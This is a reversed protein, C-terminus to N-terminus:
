LVCLLCYWRKVHLHRDLVRHIGHKAEAYIIGLRDKGMHSVQGCKSDNCEWLCRHMHWSWRSVSQGSDFM